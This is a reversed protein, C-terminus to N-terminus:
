FISTALNSNMEFDCVQWISIEKWLAVGEQHDPHVLYKEFHYRSEFGSIICFDAAVSRESLNRKCIWVKIEEINKSHSLSKKEAVVAKAHEWTFEQRFRFLVIHILMSHCDKTATQHFASAM